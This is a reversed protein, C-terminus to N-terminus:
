PVIDISIFNKKEAVNRIAEALDEYAREKLVYGSAGAKFSEQLYRIDSQFSLVIVSLEPRIRKIQRIAEIGNLNPLNIDIVVIGEFGQEILKLASLADGAEALVDIKDKPKLVKKLVNRISVSDDVLLVSISQHRNENMSNVCDTVTLIPENVSRCSIEIENM